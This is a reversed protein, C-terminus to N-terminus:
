RFEQVVEIEGVITANFAALGEAPIWYERHARGGAEQVDYGGLFDKRVRFRTVYGSGSAPVNWDRAIRVAYDETLVPYFIPQEPLRPPFARMGSQRILELEKPGVPRWLVVTAPNDTM